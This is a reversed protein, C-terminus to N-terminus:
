LEDDVESDHRPLPHSPLRTGLVVYEIFLDGYQQIDENTLIPMGKGTLRDVEGMVVLEGVKRSFTINLNDLFRVTRSWGGVMAEETTLVETRYLNDRIRRYGLSKKFEERFNVQLDGPVIEPSQNGEGHLVVNSDRPAGARIYVDYDRVNREVGKGQCEGCLNKITKGKGRCADCPMRMTTIMGPGVQRQVVIEGRGHCKNCTAFQGDSLGLGSCLHCLDQMEIGFEVLKGQYFDQLSLHIDTITNEGFQQQQRQHHGGFGGGGFFQNFMDGFDHGGQPGEATGFKDYNSRKQEDSLVEYAEGVELFLEHAEESGPNKDPHYKLSLKRYALKIERDLAQRDIGLVDYYDKALCLALQLLFVVLFKMILVWTQRTKEDFIVM